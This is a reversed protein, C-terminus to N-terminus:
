LFIVATGMQGRDTHAGAASVSEPEACYPFSLIYIFFSLSFSSPSLFFSYLLLYASHCCFHASSFPATKHYHYTHKKRHTNQRRDCTRDASDSIPLADHLSIPYTESTST